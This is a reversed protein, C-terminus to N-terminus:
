RAGSGGKVSDIIRGVWLTVVTGLPAVVPAAHLVMDVPNAPDIHM